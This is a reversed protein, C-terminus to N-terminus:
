VYIDGDLYELMDLMGEINVLVDGYVVGLKGFLYYGFDYFLENVLKGMKEVLM